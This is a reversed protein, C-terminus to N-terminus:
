VVNRVEVIEFESDFIARTLALAKLYTKYEKNSAADQPDLEYHECFELYNATDTM